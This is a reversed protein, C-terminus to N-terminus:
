KRNWCCVLLQNELFSIQPNSCSTAKRLIRRLRARLSVHFSAMWCRSCVSPVEPEHHGLTLTAKVAAQTEHLGLDVESVRLILLRQIGLLYDYSLHTM